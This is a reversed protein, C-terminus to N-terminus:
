DPLTSPHSYHVSRKGLQISAQIIVSATGSDARATARASLPAGQSGGGGYSRVAGKEDNHASQDAKAPCIPGMNNRAGVPRSGNSGSGTLTSRHESPADVGAPPRINPAARGSVGVASSVDLSTARRIQRHPQGCRTKM